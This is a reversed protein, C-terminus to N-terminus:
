YFFIQEDNVGRDNLIKQMSKRHKDSAIIYCEIEQINVKSPHTVNYRAFQIGEYRDANLDLISVIQFDRYILEKYIKKGYDNFGYIAFTKEHNNKIAKLLKTMRPDITGNKESTMYNTLLVDSFEFYGITGNKMYAQFLEFSFDYNEIRNELMKEQFTISM